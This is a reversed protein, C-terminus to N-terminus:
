KKVQKESKEKPETETEEVQLNQFFSSKELLGMLQESVQFLNGEELATELYEQVVDFEYIKKPNNNLAGLLLIENIRIVKFPNTEIKSIDNIDLDEMYRFSNYTFKLEVDKGKIKIKM